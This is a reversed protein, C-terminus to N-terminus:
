GCGCYVVALRGCLRHQAPVDLLAEDDEGLRHAALAPFLVEVDEVELQGVGLHRRDVAHVRAVSRAADARMRVLHASRGEPPLWSRADRRPSSGTDAGEHRCGPPM